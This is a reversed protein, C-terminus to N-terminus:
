LNPLTLQMVPQDPNVPNDPAPDSPAFLLFATAATLGAAILLSLFSVTNSRRPPQHDVPAPDFPNSDGPQVPPEVIQSM